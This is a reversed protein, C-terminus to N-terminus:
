TLYLQGFGRLTQRTAPVPRGPALVQLEMSLGDKEREYTEGQASKPDSGQQPGLAGQATEAQVECTLEM